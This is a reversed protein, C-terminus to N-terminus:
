RAAAWGPDPDAALPPNSNTVIGIHYADTNLNFLKLGMTGLFEEFMTVTGQAM